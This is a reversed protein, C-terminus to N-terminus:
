GATLVLAGLFCVLLILLMRDREARAAGAQVQHLPLPADAPRFGATLDANAWDDAPQM